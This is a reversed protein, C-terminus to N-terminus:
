KGIGGGSGNYLEKKAIKEEIRAIIKRTGDLDAGELKCLRIVKINLGREALMRELTEARHGQDYGLAIIDPKLEGVIKLPDGVHGLVAMDVPKLANVMEVRMLEPTIPQHKYGRVTEDRAVVVVLEDGLRRAEELYHIHGLHILDFVGSAM